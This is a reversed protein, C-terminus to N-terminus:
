PQAEMVAAARPPPGAAALDVVDADGRSASSVVAPAFDEMMAYTWSLQLRGLVHQRVAENLYALQVEGALSVMQRYPERITVVNFLQGCLQSHPTGAGAARGGAAGHADHVPQENSYFSWRNALMFARRASCGQQREAMYKDCDYACFPNYPLQRGNYLTVNRM